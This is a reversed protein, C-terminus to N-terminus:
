KALKYTEVELNDSDLEILGKKLMIDVTAEAVKVDFNCSAILESLTFKNDNDRAYKIVKRICIDYKNHEALECLCVIVFITITIINPFVLVPIFWLSLFIITEKLDRRTEINEIIQEVFKEEESKIKKMM